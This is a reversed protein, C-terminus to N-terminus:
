NGGGTAWDKVRQWGVGLVYIYKQLLSFDTMICKTSHMKKKKQVFSHQAPPQFNYISCKFLYLAKLPVGCHNQKSKLNTVLLLQM